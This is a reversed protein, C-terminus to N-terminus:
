QEAVTPRRLKNSLQQGLFSCAFAIENFEALTFTLREGLAFSRQRVELRTMVAVETRDDAPEVTHGKVIEVEVGDSMYFVKIRPIRLIFNDRRRTEIKSVVGGRHELCNRALQLSKYSGAFDLQPDLKENVAALLKPFSLAAAERQFPKLFDSLTASSSIKRKKTLLATVVHAEELAHRVARLLEQFAKALMCNEHMRRRQAAGLEPGKFTYMVEPSKAPKSLDAGSLANFHFNVIETSTVVASDVIAALRKPDVSTQLTPIAEAM